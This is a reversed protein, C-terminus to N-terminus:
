QWSSTYVWGETPNSDTSAPTITCTNSVSFVVSFQQDATMFPGTPLPIYSASFLASGSAVANGDPSGNPAVGQIEATVMTGDPCSNASPTYLRVGRLTGTVGAIV